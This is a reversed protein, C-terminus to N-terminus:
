IEGTLAWYSSTEAPNSVTDPVDKRAIYYLGGHSVLTGIGYAVGSEWADTGDNSNIHIKTIKEPSVYARVAM